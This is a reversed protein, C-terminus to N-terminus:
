SCIKRSTPSPHVSASSPVATAAITALALGYRGDVVEQESYGILRFSPPRGKFRYETAEPEKLRRVSEEDLEIDAITMFFCYSLGREPERPSPYCIGNLEAGGSLAQTRFYETVVQTPIYDVHIRDDREIPKSLDAVLGRFFRAIQKDYPYACSFMGPGHSMKSLDLVCLDRISEFLGLAFRGGNDATELVATMPDNCVYFAVIGPPTMRNSKVAVSRPPPGLEIALTFPEGERQPRARYFHSGAPVVRYLGKDVCYEEIEQLIELASPIRPHWDSDAKAEKKKTFFFRTEYKILNCFDDWGFRLREEESIGFPEAPCWAIDGIADVLADLLHGNTDHPLDLEVVDSLLERTTWPEYCQYGGEASEYPLLEDADGYFILLCDYIHEVV